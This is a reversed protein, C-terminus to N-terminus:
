YGGLEKAFDNVVQGQRAKAVINLGVHLRDVRRRIAIAEGVLWGTCFGLCIVTTRVSGERNSIDPWDPVERAAM